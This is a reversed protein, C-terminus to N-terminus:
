IVVLHVGVLADFEFEGSDAGFELVEEGEVGFIIYLDNEFGVLVFEL